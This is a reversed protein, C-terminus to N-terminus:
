GTAAARLALEDLAAPSGMAILIDGAEIMEDPSPNFRYAGSSKIIAAIIIDLERRIPSERLSIGVLDSTAAVPLEELHIELGSGRAIEELFDVVKPRLMIQALITGGREYPNLVRDAGAAELKRAGRDEGCRSVIFLEPCMSRAALVTYINEADSGLVTVLAKARRIGAQELVSDDTADGVVLPLENGIPMQERDIVVFAKGQEELERAIARGVRGFGCVIYHNSLRRIKGLVRRRWFVRGGIVAEAFNGTVYIATGVGGLIVIMSVIRGAFGLPHVERYGVTTVTIVTMYLADFVSWDPWGAIWFALTGGVLLAALSVATVRLEDGLHSPSARKTMSPNHGIGLQGHTRTAFSVMAPCRADRCQQACVLAPTSHSPGPGIIAHGEHLPVPVM